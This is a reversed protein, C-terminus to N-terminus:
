HPLIECLYFMLQLSRNKEVGTHHSIHSLIKKKLSPHFWREETFSQHHCFYTPTIISINLQSAPQKWITSYLRFHLILVWLLHIYDLVPLVQLKYHATSIIDGSYEGPGSVILISLNIGREENPPHCHTTTRWQSLWESWIRNVFLCPCVKRHTHTRAHTTRIHITTTIITPTQTGTRSFGLDVGTKM